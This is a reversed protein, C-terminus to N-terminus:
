VPIFVKDSGDLTEHYNYGLETLFDITKQNTNDGYRNDLQDWMEVVVIPKCTKITKIAGRLAFYEFGEIDLHILDCVDLGLDDIMAVPYIGAGAIHNKGRNQEDIKLNVLSRQDGLCAQYKIVNDYPINNVLCHFNLWDPEFTYVTDFLIAYQKTYFGCNGGAQVAVRKQSVLNSIRQPLDPARQMYEWCRIDTKPWYWGQRIEILDTLDKM